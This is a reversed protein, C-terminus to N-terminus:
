WFFVRSLKLCLERKLKLFSSVSLKAANLEIRPITKISGKKLPVLRVMAMTICCQVEPGSVFRLYAVSGYALESGDSFLHLQIDAFEGLTSFCRRIPICTLGELSQLWLKWEALLTEPLKEDWGLKLLCANQFINKARILIPCVINFPDYVSFICSLVDRKKFPSDKPCIKYCLGDTEPDWVVGLASEEPLEKDSSVVVDKSLKDNPLSALVSRSCSSFQTLDFSCESLIERVETVLEILKKESSSSYLFDDVYFNRVIEGRSGNELCHQLAFNAVSPSSKVGFVHVRLRYQKPVSDLNNKKYWLFRLYDADSELVKVMYYMKAIDASVAVTGEQFRLPVGTLNSTFDPGQLLLDNLSIDKFKASCDYVM